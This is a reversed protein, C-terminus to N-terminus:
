SCKKKGFFHLLTNKLKKPADPIVGESLGFVISELQKANKPMACWGDWPQQLVSKKRPSSPSPKKTPELDNLFFCFVELGVMRWSHIQAAIDKLDEVSYVGRHEDNFGHLRLYVLSSTMAGAAAVKSLQELPYESLSCGGRGSTSTGITSRGVSNPHMVLAFGSRKLCRRVEEDFYTAQNRFEFAIRGKYWCSEEDLMIKLQQLQPVAVALTRPCQILICALSENLPQMRSLFSTLVSCDLESQEHTLGRPAKMVVKFSKAFLKKWKTVTSETPIGYFTSNIEVTRFHQQYHDLQRNSHNGVLSKPYFNGVWSSSSFGACGCYFKGMALPPPAVPSPTPSRLSSASQEEEQGNSIMSNRDSDNRNGSHIGKEGKELVCEGSKDKESTRNHFGYGNKSSPEPEAENPESRGALPWLSKVSLPLQELEVVPRGDVVVANYHQRRNRHLIVARPHSGIFVFRNDINKPSSGDDYSTGDHDNRRRKRGSSSRGSGRAAQDDIILLTLALGESLKRLAFEDAWFCNGPGNTRGSRKAFEQLQELTTLRASFHYEDLGAVAYMKYLDLQESTLREAVYNRMSRSSPIETGGRSARSAEPEANDNATTWLLILPPMPGYKKCHRLLLERICDYFCDGSAPVSIVDLDHAPHLKLTERLASTRLM